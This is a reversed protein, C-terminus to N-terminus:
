SQPGPDSVEAKEVRGECDSMGLANVRSKARALAVEARRKFEGASDNGRRALETVGASISLTLIANSGQIRFPTAAVALRLREAYDWAGEIDTKAALILFEDGGYRFVLGKAARNGDLTDGPQTRVSLSKGPEDAALVAACQRLVDSAVEYPFSSNVQGFKNIDVFILSLPQDNKVAASMAMPLQENLARLNLLGTLPDTRAEKLLDGSLFLSCSFGILFALSAVPFALYLPLFFTFHLWTSGYPIDKCLLPGVICALLVFLGFGVKKPLRAFASKPNTGVTDLDSARSDHYGM